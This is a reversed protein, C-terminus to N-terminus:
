RNWGDGYNIIEAKSYWYLVQSSDIQSPGDGGAGVWLGNVSKVRVRQKGSSGVRIATEVPLADLEERSCVWVPRAQEVLGDVLKRALDSLTVGKLLEGVEEPTLSVEAKSEM